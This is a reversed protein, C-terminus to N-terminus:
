KLIITSLFRLISWCGPFRGDTMRELVHFAVQWGFMASDAMTIAANFSSPYLFQKSDMSREFLNAAVCWQNCEVCARLLSSFSVPFRLDATQWWSFLQQMSIQWFDQSEMEDQGSMVANLTDEDARLSSRCIAEVLRLSRQWFGLQGDASV